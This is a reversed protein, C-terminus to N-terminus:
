LKDKLISKWIAYGAPNMHTSDSSYLEPRIHGENDLMPTQVDIYEVYPYHDALTKYLENLEMIKDFNHRKNVSVTNSLLLIQLKPFDAHCRETFTRTNQVVANLPLSANIDNIGCFYVIKEYAFPKVVRDYYYIMDVSQSGGFGCLVVDDDPFDNGLTRWLRISSSGLFLIASDSPLDTANRYEYLRIDNEFRASRNPPPDSYVYNVEGANVTCIHENDLLIEFRDMIGVSSAELSVRACAIDDESILHGQFHTTSNTRISVSKGAHIGEASIAFNYSTNDALHVAAHLPFKVKDPEERVLRVSQLANNNIYTNASHHWSFRKRGSIGNYDV